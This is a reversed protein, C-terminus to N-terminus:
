VKAFGNFHPSTDEFIEVVEYTGSTWVEEGILKHAVDKIMISAIPLSLRGEGQTRLLPLEGHLWYFRQGKKLFKYVKGMELPDPICEETVRAGKQSESIDRLALDPNFEVQIGM